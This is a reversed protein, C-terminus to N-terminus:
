KGFNFAEGSPDKTAWCIGFHLTAWSQLTPLCNQKPSPRLQVDQTPQVMDLTWHKTEAKMTVSSVAGASWM